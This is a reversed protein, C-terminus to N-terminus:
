YKDPQSSAIRSQEILTDWDKGHMICYTGTTCYAGTKRHNNKWFKVWKEANPEKSKADYEELFEILLIPLVEAVIVVVYWKAQSKITNLIFLNGNYVIIISQYFM